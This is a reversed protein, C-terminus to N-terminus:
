SKRMFPSEVFRYSLAGATWAAIAFIPTTLLESTGASHLTALILQHWLYIGYCWVGTLALPKFDLWRGLWGGPCAALGALVGCGLLSLPLHWLLITMDRRMPAVFPMALYALLCALGIWQWAAPRRQALPAGLAALCGVAICDARTIALYTLWVPTNGPQRVLLIRAYCCLVTFGIPASAAVWRRGPLRHSVLLVLPWLLYFKMEVGLSWLHVFLRGIPMGNFVIRQVDTSFLAASAFDEWRGHERAFEDSLVLASGLGAIYLFLGPALRLVRRTYFWRLSFTGNADLKRLLIHTILFGSIAFIVSVGSGAAVLKLHLMLVALIGVGRLGDVGPIRGGV